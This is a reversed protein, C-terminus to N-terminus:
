TPPEPLRSARAYVAAPYNKLREYLEVREFYVEVDRPNLALLQSYAAIAGDFDGLEQSLSAVKAYGRTSRPSIKVMMQYDQLAGKQDGNFRRVHARREYGELDKPNIRILASYDELAGQPDNQQFRTSGRQSYALTNQPDIRIMASYDAIAGQHDSQALNITARWLYAQLNNPNLEIVRSVDSLAGAVDRNTYRSTGRLWFAQESKPDLAIIRDLDELAINTQGSAITHNVRALYLRADRPAIQIAQTLLAIAGAHDGSQAKVAAAVLADDAPSSTPIDPPAVKLAVGLSDAQRLFTEIPIGLNFGTKVRVDANITSAELRSDVDGRGHIGVLEGNSNFVGGGSMGPLTPNTYVMAYGDAFSRNSRATIKGDTFNYVPNTIAETALPFGAVYVPLGESATTSSALPSVSYTRDSKFTVVALDIDSLRRVQSVPHQKQDATTIQYPVESTPVVHAATLLTYTDSQRQIIVGSGSSIGDAVRVTVQKAQQAITAAALSLRIPRTGQGKLIKEGQVTAFHSRATAFEAIQIIDFCLLLVGLKIGWKVNWKAQIM